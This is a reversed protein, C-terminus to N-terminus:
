ASNDIGRIFIYTITVWKNAYVEVVIVERTKSNKLIWLAVSTCAPFGEGVISLKVTM